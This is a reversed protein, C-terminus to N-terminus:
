MLTMIIIKKLKKSKKLIKLITDEENYVPIIIDIKM